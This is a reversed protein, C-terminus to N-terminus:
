SCFFVSSKVRERTKKQSTLINNSKQWIYLLNTSTITQVNSFLFIVFFKPTKNGRLKKNEYMYLENLINCFITASQLFM